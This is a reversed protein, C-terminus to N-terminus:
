INEGATKEVALGSKYLKMYEEFGKVDEADPEITTCKFKSFINKKLYDDLSQNESDYAYHALVAIGWAGGEAATELVSVPTNMAAAMIKQGVVPTKFLGGHGTLRDITVNEKELIEMGIKLTATTSYILSRMFNSLNFNSNEGRVFLPRGKETKTVPEGSFYNYSVLGGCSKDGDLATNYLMDYLQPKSIDTGSLKSFEYFINVWYDFDTCCNNCHVMAVPKGTPTTVMDIEEYVKSLQNELVVMSFISTGASINGTRQTISNTAVMGTGADGEPPCMLAGAQLNGSVDLLKAGEETLYGANEGAILVNPLIERINWNYKKVEELSSFIEIMGSDFDCTESDIPFMGSAEGVGLVTEGSLKWHVYGALTTLFSIDSVHEEGNLIAQYLHAISWRQPINFGFKETLIESAKSTITNRWTRFEALQNGEKDFPLYGHMMASIGISSLKKIKTNYKKEVDENLKSYADQLGAWIDETHYTWIGNELRNEWSHSGMAIPNCNEDVLVAKIRTSGFEVGLAEKGTIVYDAM